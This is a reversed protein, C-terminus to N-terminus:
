WHVQLFPSSVKNGKKETNEEGIKDYTTLVVDFKALFSPTLPSKPKRPTVYLYSRKKASSNSGERWDIM